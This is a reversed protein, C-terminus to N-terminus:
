SRVSPSINISLWDVDSRIILSKNYFKLSQKYDGMNWYLGGMKFFVYAKLQYLENEETIQLAMELYSLSKEYEGVSNLITTIKGLVEVLGKPYELEKYVEM